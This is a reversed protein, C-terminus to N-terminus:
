PEVVQYVGAPQASHTAMELIVCDLDGVKVQHVQGDSTTYQIQVDRVNTAVHATRVEGKVLADLAYQQLRTM